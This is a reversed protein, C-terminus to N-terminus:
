KRMVSYVHFNEDRLVAGEADFLRTLVFAEGAAEVVVSGPTQYLRLSSVLHFRNMGSAKASMALIEDFKTPRRKNDWRVFTGHRGSEPYYIPVNLFGAVASVAMDSVGAIMGRDLDNSKIFEATRQANSFTYLYDQAAAMLGAAAQILLVLVIGGGGLKDVMRTIRGAPGSLRPAISSPVMWLSAVLAIFLFGHHRPHGSFKAYFFVLLGGASLAFFTLAFASRRLVIAVCMLVAALVVNLLASPLGWSLIQLEGWYHPDLPPLPLLAGALAKTVDSFAQDDPTFNWTTDFGFDPPPIIQMVATNLGVWVILGALIQWPGVDMVARTLGLSALRDALVALSFALAIIIGFVSTHCLLFLVVAIWVASKERFPFLACLIFTLLVGIAYNRALQAYEYFLYYGLCILLMVPWRFPAHRILVFVSASAIAVHLVQMSFPSATLRTLPMLLLHWIGPHGEYRLNKMLDIVGASDRALLWAQLEDRWMEHYQVLFLQLLFFAGAALGAIRIDPRASGSRFLLGDPKAHLM